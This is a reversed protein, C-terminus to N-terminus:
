SKSTITTARVRGTNSSQTQDQQSRNGNRNSLCFLNKLKKRFLGSSFTFLYFSTCPGLTSLMGIVSNIMNEQAVQFVDKPKSANILTIIIAISFILGTICYVLVQTFLM